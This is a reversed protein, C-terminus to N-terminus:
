PTVAEAKGGFKREADKLAHVQQRTPPPVSAVYASATLFASVRSDFDPRRTM